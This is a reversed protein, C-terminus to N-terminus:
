LFFLLTRLSVAYIEFFLTINVRGYQCPRVNCPRDAGHYINFCVRLFIREKKQVALGHTYAGVVYRQM